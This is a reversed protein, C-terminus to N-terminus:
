KAHAGRFFMGKISDLRKFQAYCNNYCTKCRQPIEEANERALESKWIDSFSQDYVNGIKKDYIWCRYVDGTPHLFFGENSFICGVKRIGGGLMQIFNKYYSLSNTLYGDNRIKELFSAVHDRIKQSDEEIIADLENNQFYMSSRMGYTFDIKIDHKKLNEYVNDLELYNLTNITFNISFSFRHDHQLRKLMNISNWVRSYSGKVGRVLDHTSEMGDISLYCYLDFGDNLSRIDLILKELRDTLFGNSNLTITKLKPCREQLGKVIDAVDSRLTLEGGTLNVSEINQSLIPDEFVSCLFESSIEQM